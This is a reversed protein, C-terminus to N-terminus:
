GQTMSKLLGDKPTLAYPFTACLRHVDLVIDPAELAPAVDTNM